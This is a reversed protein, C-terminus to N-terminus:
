ACARATTCVYVPYCYSAYCYTCHTIEGRAPWHGGLDLRAGHVFLHAVSVVVGGHVEVMGPISKM